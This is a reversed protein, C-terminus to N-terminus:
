LLAFAMWKDEGARTWREPLDQWMQHSSMFAFYDTWPLHLVSTLSPFLFAPGSKLDSHTLTPPCSGSASGPEPPVRHPSSLSCQWRAWLELFLQFWAGQTRMSRRLLGSGRVRLNLRDIGEKFVAIQSLNISGRSRYFRDWTGTHLSKAGVLIGWTLHVIANQYRVRRLTTGKCLLINRQWFTNLQIYVPIWLQLHYIITSGERVTGGAIEKYLAILFSGKIPFNQAPRLLQPCILFLHHPSCQGQSLRARPVLDSSAFILAIPLKWLYSQSNCNCFYKGVTNTLGPPLTPFPAPTLSLIWKQFSALKAKLM